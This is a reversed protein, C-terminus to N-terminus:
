LRYIQVTMTQTSRSFHELQQSTQTNQTDLRTLIETTNAVTRRFNRLFERQLRGHQHPAKSITLRHSTNAYRQLSPRGPVLISPNVGELWNYSAVYQCEEITPIIGKSTTSEQEPHITLLLKGVPEQNTPSSGASARAGGQFRGRTSGRGRGGRQMSGFDRSMNRM